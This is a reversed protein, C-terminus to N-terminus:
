RRRRMACDQLADRRRAQRIRFRRRGGGRREASDRSERHPLIRAGRCAFAGPFRRRDRRRRLDGRSAAAGRQARHDGAGRGGRVARHFCERRDDRGGRDGGDPSHGGGAASASLFLELARAFDLYPNASVLCPLPAEGGLHQFSPRRHDGRGQDAAGAACVEPQGSIHNRRGPGRWGPWAAFRRRAQTGGEAGDAGPAKLVCGLKSAIARLKM